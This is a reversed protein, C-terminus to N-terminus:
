LIMLVQASGELISLMEMLFLFVHPCSFYPIMINLEGKWCLLGPLPMLKLHKQWLYLTWSSHGLSPEEECLGCCLVLTPSHDRSPFWLSLQLLLYVNWTQSILYLWLFFLGWLWYAFSKVNANPLHFALWNLIFLVISAKFVQPPLLGTKIYHESIPKRPYPAQKPLVYSNM